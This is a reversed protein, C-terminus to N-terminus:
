LLFRRTGTAMLRTLFALLLHICYRANVGRGLARVLRDLLVMTLWTSAVSFYAHPTNTTEAEILVPRECKHM